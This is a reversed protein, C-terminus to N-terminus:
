FTGRWIFSLRPGAGGGTRGGSVPPLFTLDILSGVWVSTLLLAATQYDNHAAKLRTARQGYIYQGIFFDQNDVPQLFLLPVPDLYEARRHVVEQNTYYLAGLAGGAAVTWGWGRSRAGMHRHGWGPLVLNRLLAGRQREQLARYRHQWEAVELAASNQGIKRSSAGMEREKDLQLRARELDAKLSGLDKQLRASEGASLQLPVSELGRCAVAAAKKKQEIEKLSQDVNEIQQKLKQEDQEIALELERILGSRKEQLQGAETDLQATSCERAIAANGGSRKENIRDQVEQLSQNARALIRAPDDRQAQQAQLAAAAKQLKEKELKIRKMEWDVPGYTLRALTSKAVRRAPGGREERYEVHSQTQGTIQVDEIKEGNTLYLTDARLILPWFLLGTLYRWM